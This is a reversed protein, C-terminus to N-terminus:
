RMEKAGKLCFYDDFQKRRRKRGGEEKM